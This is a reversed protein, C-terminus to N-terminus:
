YKLKLMSCLFLFIHISDNGEVDNVIINGKLAVFDTCSLFTYDFLFIFLGIATQCLGAFPYYIYTWLM